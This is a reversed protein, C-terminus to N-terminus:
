KSFRQISYSSVNYTTETGDKKIIITDDDVVKVYIYSYSFGAFQYKKYHTQNVPPNNYTYKIVFEEGVNEETLSGFSNITESNKDLKHGVFKTIEYDNFQHKATIYDSESCEVGSGSGSIAIGYTSTETYTKGDVTYTVSYVKEYKDSCGTFLLVTACIVLSLIFSITRKVM